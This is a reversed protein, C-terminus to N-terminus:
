TFRARLTSRVQEEVDAEGGLILALFRTPIFDDFTTNWRFFEVVDELPDDSHWTTMVFREDPPTFTPSTALFAWDIADDWASCQHGACVAYRCGQRVLEASVAAREEPTIAPDAALLLVACDQGAFPSTFQFPRDVRAVWVDCDSSQTLRDM